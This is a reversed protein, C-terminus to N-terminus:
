SIKYIVRREEDLRTSQTLMTIYLEWLLKAKLLEQAILPGSRTDRKKVKDIFRLVHATIRFLKCLSSYKREDIDSLDLVKVHKGMTDEGSVLKAEYLIKNGKFEIDSKKLSSEEIVVEHNPWQQNPKTMWTPGNWWISSNLETPSKGRTAIDAPNDTSAVHAFKVGECFKIEKIRNTVFVSLPKPTTVWYLVCLSDTFLYCSVQLHVEKLLFKLARIGILAGLLELRPITTGQPALCTKSFILDAKFTDRYSQHLYVATAYAIASADCFCM